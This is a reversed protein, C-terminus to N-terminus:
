IWPLQTLSHHAVCLYVCGCASFGAMTMGTFTNADTTAVHTWLFGDRRIFGYQINKVNTKAVLHM